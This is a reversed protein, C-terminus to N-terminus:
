VHCFGPWFPHFPPCAPFDTAPNTPNAGTGPYHLVWPVTSVDHSDNERGADAERQDQQNGHLEEAAM